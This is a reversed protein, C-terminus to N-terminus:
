RDDPLILGHVSVMGVIQRLDQFVNLYVFQARIRRSNELLVLLGDQILHM